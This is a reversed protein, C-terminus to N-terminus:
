REQKCEKNYQHPLTRRLRSRTVRHNSGKPRCIDLACINKNRYFLDLGARVRLSEAEKPLAAEGKYSQFRKWGAGEKNGTGAGEESYKALGERQRAAHLEKQHEAIRAASTM